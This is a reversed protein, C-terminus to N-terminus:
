VIIVMSRMLSCVDSVFDQICIESRSRGAFNFAFFSEAAYDRPIVSFGSLEVNRMM